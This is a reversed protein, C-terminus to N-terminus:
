HVVLADVAVPGGGSHTITITHRGASLGTVERVMQQPQRAGTTSLDVTGRVVGDVAIEVSGAGPEKPAYVAVSSGTFTSSWVV